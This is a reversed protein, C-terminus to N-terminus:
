LYGPGIYYWTPRVYVKQHQGAASLVDRVAVATAESRVVLWRVLNWPMLQYVLFEAARRTARQPDEATDAWQRAAQLPWDVRDDLEDLNDHYATLEAGCNGDSFVWRAGADIVAGITSVLYVLPEQGDQYHEVGGKAIRYLMPSRPAFYFPAYDCPCGRPGCTVPLRRRAGKIGRDGIEHRLQTGVRRDPLLGNSIITTLHRTHTFHM